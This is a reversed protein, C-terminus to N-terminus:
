NTNSFVVLNSNTNSFVVLHIVGAHFGKTIYLIIRDKEVSDKCTNCNWEGM